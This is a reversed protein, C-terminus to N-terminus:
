LRQPAACEGDAREREPKAEDAKKGIAPLKKARIQDGIHEPQADRQAAQADHHDVM